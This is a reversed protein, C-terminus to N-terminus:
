LSIPLNPLFLLKKSVKNNSFRKVNEQKSDKAALIYIIIATFYLVLLISCLKLQKLTNTERNWIKQGRKM